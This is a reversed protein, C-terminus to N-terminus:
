TIPTSVLRTLLALRKEDLENQLAICERLEDIVNM